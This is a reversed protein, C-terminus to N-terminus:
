CQNTERGREALDAGKRCVLSMWSGIRDEAFPVLPTHGLAQRLFDAEHHRFGALVLTGGGRLTSSLRERLLDLITPMALNVVVIDWLIPAEGPTALARELSGHEVTVVAQVANLEINYRADAVADIETDLALVRSAGMRAAAIALIGTGTGLDVVSDGPRLFTELARLCLQTTPHTGNGFPWGRRLRLGIESGATPTDDWEPLALIRPTVRVPAFWHSVVGGLAEYFSERTLREVSLRQSATLSYAETARVPDTLLLDLYTPDVAARSLVQILALPTSGNSRV